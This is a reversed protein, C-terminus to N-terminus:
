NSPKVPWIPNEPDITNAPLDRLAQRYILWEQKKEDSISYDPLILYDTEVILENRKTRLKDWPINNIYEALKADFVEKTPLGTYDDPVSISEYTVGNGFSKLDPCLQKIVQTVISCNQPNVEM